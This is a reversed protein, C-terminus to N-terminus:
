SAKHATKNQKEKQKEKRKGGFTKPGKELWFCPLKKPIKKL